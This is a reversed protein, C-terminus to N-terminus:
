WDPGLVKGDDPMLANLWTANSLNYSVTRVSGDALATVMGGQHVSNARTFRWNGPVDRIPPDRGDTTFQSWYVYPDADMPNKLVAGFLPSWIVQYNIPWSWFNVQANKEGLLVTNSSGDPINGIRYRCGYTAYPGQKDEIGPGSTGLLLYNAAYTTYAHYSEGQTDPYYSASPCRYTPILGYVEIYSWPATPSGPVQLNWTYPSPASLVTQYLANQEIYPLIAFFLTYCKNNQFTTLDPFRDGHNQAFHHCALAIQKVNNTCQARQGAERVQQVAPLLLGILIAIIAIVVLLEILTFAAPRSPTTKM